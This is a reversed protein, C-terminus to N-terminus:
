FLVCKNVPNMFAGATCGFARAFDVSNQLPGLVRYQDPSYSSDLQRSLEDSKILTCRRQAYSIFFLQHDTYNIGPLIKKPSSDEMELEEYAKFSLKLGVSDATNELLTNLGNISKNVGKVIFSNYQDVFCRTRNNFVDTFSQNWTVGAGDKDYNIGNSDFGHTIEHGIINGVSGYNIADPFNSDFISPQLYGEPLDMSNRFENYFANSQIPLLNWVNRNVLRLQRLMVYFSEKNLLAVNELFTERNFSMNYYYEELVTANYMREWYFLSINMNGNKEKMFQREYDNLWSAQNVTANFTAQIRHILDSVLIKDEVDLANIAYLSNTAYKMNNYFAMTELCVMENDPLWPVYKYRDPDLNNYDIILKYALIVRWVIFDALTRKSTQLLLTKLALFYANPGRFIIESDTLNQIGIEPYSTVTVFFKKWDFASSLYRQQMQSITFPNNIGYPQIASIMSLNKEFDMVNDILEATVTENNVGFIAAMEAMIQRYYNKRSINLSELREGLIFTPQDLKLVRVKDDRFDVTVSFTCVTSVFHSSARAVMAEADFASENWHDDALSWGGFDKLILDVLPKYGRTDHVHNVCSAYFDKAKIIYGRESPMDDAELLRKLKLLANDQLVDTITMSTRDRPLVNQDIWGKCSFHYFDECPDISSDMYQTIRSALAICEKTMCIDDKKDATSGSTANATVHKVSSRSLFVALLIVASITLTLLFVLSASTVVLCRKSVSQPKRSM